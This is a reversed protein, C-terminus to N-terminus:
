KILWIETINRDSNINFKIDSGKKPDGDYFKVNTALTYIKGNVITLHRKLDFITVRGTKTRMWDEQTTKNNTITQSNPSIAVMQNAFVVAGVNLTILMTILLIITKKM